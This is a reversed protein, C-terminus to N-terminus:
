NSRVELTTGAARIRLSGPPVLGPTSTTRPASARPVPILPAPSGAPLDLDPAADVDLPGGIFFASAAGIADAALPRTKDRSPPAWAIVIRPKAAAGIKAALAKVDSERLVCGRGHEGLAAPDDSGPLTVAELGAVAFARVVGGDIVRTGADAIAERVLDVEDEPGAIAVVLPASKSIARLVEALPERQLGGLGVVFVASIGPPIAPGGRGGDLSTVIMPADASVGRLEARVGERVLKKGEGLDIESKSDRSPVEGCAYARKEGVKTDGKRRCGGFALVLGLILVERYRHGRM